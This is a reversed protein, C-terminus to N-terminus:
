GMIYDHQTEMTIYVNVLPYVYWQFLPPACFVVSRRELKGVRLWPDNLISVFSPNTMDMFVWITHREYLYCVYMYIYIHQITIYTYLRTYM